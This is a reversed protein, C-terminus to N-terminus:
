AKAMFRKRVSAYRSILRVTWPSLTTQFKAGRIVKRLGEAGDFADLLLVSRGVEVIGHADSGVTGPLNYKEAFEQAQRNFRPDICRSNFVEIADVFPVIELLDAEKWGGSRLADFPHSVSVFAGQARLREITERPSLGAPIEETVYAALIEGKTTMIEEGVIILEADLAQAELAGRISNHDTVVLRDLGRRRAARILDAPRTLSDKSAYTHCHFELILTM